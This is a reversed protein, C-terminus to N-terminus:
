GDKADVPFFSTPVTYGFEELRWDDWMCDNIMVNDMEAWNRTHRPRGPIVDHILAGSGGKGVLRKVAPVYFLSQSDNDFTLGIMKQMKMENLEEYAYKLVSHRFIDTSSFYEEGPRDAQSCSAFVTNFIYNFLEESEETTLGDGLKISLAYLPDRVWGGMADEIFGRTSASEELPEGKEEQTAPVPISEWLVQMVVEAGCVDWFGSRRILRSMASGVADSSPRGKFSLPSVMFLWALYVAKIVRRREDATPPRYDHSPKASPSSAARYDHNGLQCKIFKQATKEAQAHIDKVLSVLATDLSQSKIKNSQERTTETYVNPDFPYRGKGDHIELWTFALGNIIRDTANTCYFRYYLLIAPILFYDGIERQYLNDIISPCEAVFAGVSDPYALCFNDLDAKEDIASLILIFVDYPLCELLLKNSTHMQM